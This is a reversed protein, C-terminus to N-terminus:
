CSEKESQKERNDTLEKKREYLKCNTQMEPYYIRIQRKCCKWEGWHFDFVSHECTKCKNYKSSM